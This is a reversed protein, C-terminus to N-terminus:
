AGIKPLKRLESRCKRSRLISRQHWLKMLECCGHDPDSNRHPRLPDNCCSFSQRVTIDDILLHVFPVTRARPCAFRNPVHAFRSHRDFADGLM